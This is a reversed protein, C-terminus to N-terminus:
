SRRKRRERVVKTLLRDKQNTSLQWPIGIKDLWLGAESARGRISHPSIDSPFPKDVGMLEEYTDSEKDWMHAILRYIVGQPVDHNQGKWRVWRGGHPGDPGSPEEPLNGPPTPQPPNEPSSETTTTTAAPHSPGFGFEALLRLADEERIERSEDIWEAEADYPDEPELEEDPDYTLKHEVYIGKPTRHLQHLVVGPFYTVGQRAERPPPFQNAFTWTDCEDTNLSAERGDRAKYRLIPV